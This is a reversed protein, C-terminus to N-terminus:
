QPIRSERAELLEQLQSEAEATAPYILPAENPLTTPTILYRGQGLRHLPVLFERDTPMRTEELNEVTIEGLEEAHKWEKNVILTSAEAKPRTATVVLDSHLIQKRNLTVPNASSAALVLLGLIWAGAVAFAAIVVKRPRSSSNGALPASGASTAAPTPETPLGEREHNHGNM